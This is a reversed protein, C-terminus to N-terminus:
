SSQFGESTMIIKNLSQSFENKINLLKKISCIDPILGTNEPLEGPRWKWLDGTKLVEKCFIIYEKGTSWLLEAILVVKVQIFVTLTKLQTCSNYNDNVHKYFSHLTKNRPVKRFERCFKVLLYWNVDALLFIRFLLSRVTHNFYAIKFLHSRPDSKFSTLPAKNQIAPPM